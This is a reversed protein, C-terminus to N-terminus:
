RLAEVGEGHIEVAKGIAQLMDPSLAQSPTPRYSRGRDMLHEFIPAKLGDERVWPFSL